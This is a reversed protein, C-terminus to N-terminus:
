KGGKKAMKAWADRLSVTRNFVPNGPTSDKTDVCFYGTREFQYRSGPAADKLSPELCAESIKELSGPNIAAEWDEEKAPNEVQFLHDYLRVEAKHAHQASVWHITGKVKRGDPSNGGRSAPDYTCHIERIEGSSEEKVVDTCTVFYGYRLRVERGPALRFFKKPPDEMFDAQEIYLERSFPVKRKGASEDEPNNVADLEEEQGEPYNTIVVKLPKLVGMVRLATKNLDERLANELVPLGIMSNMKAVGITECFKRIALPTYGRRRFGALTPMRPDDWGDVHRDEVLSRLKRKSMM